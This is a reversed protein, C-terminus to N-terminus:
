EVQTVKGAGGKKIGENISNKANAKVNDELATMAGLLQETEADSLNGTEKLKEMARKIGAVDQYFHPSLFHLRSFRKTHVTRGKKREKKREKM